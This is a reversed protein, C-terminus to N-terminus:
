ELGELDWTINAFGNWAINDDPSTNQNPVDVLCIEGTLNHFVTRLTGFNYVSIYTNTPNWNVTWSLMGDIIEYLCPLGTQELYHTVLLNDFDAEDSYEGPLLSTLRLQIVKPTPEDGFAKGVGWCVTCPNGPENPPLPTGMYCGILFILTLETM